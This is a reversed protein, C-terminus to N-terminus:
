LELTQELSEGLVAEQELRDLEGRLKLNEGRLRTLEDTNHHLKERLEACIRATLVDYEHQCEQIFGRPMGHYRMHDVLSVLARELDSRYMLPTEEVRGKRYDYEWWQRLWQNLAMLARDDFEFAEEDWACTAYWEALRYHVTDQLAPFRFRPDRQMKEFERRVIVHVLVPLGVSLLPWFFPWFSHIIMDSGEPVLGSLILAGLAWVIAILTAGEARGSGTKPYPWWLALRQRRNLKQVSTWVPQGRYELTALTTLNM